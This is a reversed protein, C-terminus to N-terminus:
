SEGWVSMSNQTSNISFNLNFLRFRQPHKLDSGITSPTPSLRSRFQHWIQFSSLLAFNRAETRHGLFSRRM